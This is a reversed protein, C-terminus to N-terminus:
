MGCSFSNAISNAMDDNANSDSTIILVLLWLRLGPIALLCVLANALSVLLTLTM